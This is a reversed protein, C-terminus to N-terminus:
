ISDAERQTTKIIRGPRNKDISEYQCDRHHTQMTCYWLEEDKKYTRNHTCTLCKKAWDELEATAGRGLEPWDASNFDYQLCPSKKNIKM